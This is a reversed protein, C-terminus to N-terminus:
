YYQIRDVAENPDAFDIVEIFRAASELHNFGLFAAISLLNAGNEYARRGCTRRLDTPFLRNKGKSPAIGALNGYRAVLYSVTRKSLPKLCSKISKRIQVFISGHNDQLSVNRHDLWIKLSQLWRTHTDIPEASRKLQIYFKTGSSFIQEFQLNAVEGLRMGQYLMSDLIALDRKGESSNTDCVARLNHVQTTSLIKKSLTNALIL